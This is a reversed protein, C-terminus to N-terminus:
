RVQAEDDATRHHPPALEFIDLRANELNESHIRLAHAALWNEEPAPERGEHIKVLM